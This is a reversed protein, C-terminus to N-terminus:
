DYKCNFPDWIFGEDCIGKDILEECEYRCKDKNRRQKNNCVSAGLRCKCRCTEHWRICRRENSRSMINFVKVIISNVVNPVRLKAYPDDVDNFSGSYKNKKLLTLNFYFIM